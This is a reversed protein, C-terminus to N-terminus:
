CTRERLRAVEAAIGMATADDIFLEFSLEVGLRERTRAMIQTITLSHGGLDFLDEDPEVDDLELEKAFIAQIERVLDADVPGDKVAVSAATAATVSAAPVPGPLPLRDLPAEPDAAVAALLAALHERIREAGSRDLLAPNYQLRAATGAQDDVIQLHLTNRVWGNFMMWEVSAGLGPFLPSTEPRRRYSLSVPTLAARPGIGDVARALPVERHRYLRRLDGRLSRAFEGFTGGEPAGIVPLENVFAGVHDRSGDTRTSLDVGVAPRANGYARLLAVFAALVAEFRTVELREALGGLDEVVFDLASGPAAAVSVGTLGPLCLERQDQWQAQWQAAWYRRAGPLAEALRVQQQVAVEPYTAGLPAPAAGGYWAALDRLLIDKSEGDFVAHHAQFLLVHRKADERILTFRAAPGDVPDVPGALEEQLDGGERMPPVADPVVRLEGGDEALVGGLVPHRRAVEECAEGLAVVDLPGDLWVALPMHFARGAVGARETLWMGQQAPSAPWSGTM